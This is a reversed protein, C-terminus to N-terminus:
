AHNAAWHAAIDVHRAYWAGGAAAVHEFFKTLARTRGPHGAIHPQLSIPLLKPATAGEKVLQDYTSTLQKEFDAPSGFWKDEFHYDSSARTTPIVLRKSDDITVWYPLDDAYSDSDYTFGGHAALLERTNISPSERSLWGVPREGTTRTIAEVALAIHEAEEDRTLSTPKVYRYGLGAVEHGAPRLRAALDPTKELALGASFFTTPVEYAAFADLLRWVGARTGYEWMTEVALDRETVRAPAYWGPERRPDGNGIALESGEIYHVTVAIAVKADDPWGAKPPKGNFGVVDRVPGPGQGLPSVITM